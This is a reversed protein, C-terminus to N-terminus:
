ASQNASHGNKRWPGQQDKKHVGNPVIDLAHGPYLGGELSNLHSGNPEDKRRDDQQHFGQAIVGEGNANYGEGSQEVVAPANRRKQNDDEGQGGAQDALKQDQAQRLGQIRRLRGKGMNAQDLHLKAM